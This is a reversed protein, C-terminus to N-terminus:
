RTADHYGDSVGLWVQHKAFYSNVGLDINLGLDRSLLRRRLAIEDALIVVGVAVLITFFLM